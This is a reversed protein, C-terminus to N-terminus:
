GQDFMESTMRYVVHPRLVHGEPISPMDFDYAAHRAMGIRQMVRQSPTNPVATFCVIEDLGRNKFGFDLWARAAESALGKGWASPILRWGIEAVPTFPLEMRFLSLGALGLVQDTHKDVVASFAFGDDRWRQAFVEIHQQSQAKSYPAPYFRMVDPDANLAAYAELDDMTFPRLILRETEIQM